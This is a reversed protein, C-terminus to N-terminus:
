GQVDFGSTVDLDIEGDTITYPIEVTYGTDPYTCFIYGKKVSYTGSSTTGIGTRLEFNNEASFELEYYVNNVYFQWYYGNLMGKVQTATAEDADTRLEMEAAYGEPDMAQAIEEGSSFHQIDDTSLEIGTTDPIQSDELTITKGAELDAEPIKFTAAVQISTGTYLDEIYSSYYYNQALFCASADDPYYESEYTNTGDITLQTYNSDIQLNESGANLTYFLYVLKLPSGDDDQYSDDVCIGNITIYDNGITQVDNPSDETSSPTGANNGCAALSVLLTVAALISLLKKM